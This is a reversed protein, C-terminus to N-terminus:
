GVQIVTKRSGAEQEQQNKSVTIKQRQKKFIRPNKGNVMCFDMDRQNKDDISRLLFNRQQTTTTHLLSTFNLLKFGVGRYGM